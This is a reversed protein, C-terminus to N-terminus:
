VKEQDEPKKKYETQNNKSMAISSKLNIIDARVKFAKSNKKILAELGFEDSKDTQNTQFLLTFFSDQQNKQKIYDKFM